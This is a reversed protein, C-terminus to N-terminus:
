KSIAVKKGNVVYIGPELDTLSEVNVRIGLLDYVVLGEPQAVEVGEIDRQESVSVKCTARADGGDIAYATIIAEGKALAKVKGTFDVTAVDENSSKWALTKDAANEPAVTAVITLEQGEEITVDSQDLTITEVTAPADELSELKIGSIFFRSSTECAFEWTIKKNNGVAPVEVSKEIMTSTMDVYGDGGSSPTMTGEYNTITLLTQGDVMVKLYGDKGFKGPEHGLPVEADGSDPTKGSGRDTELAFSFTLKTKRNLPLEPTALSAPVYEGTKAYLAHDGATRLWPAFQYKTATWNLLDMGYPYNEVCPIYPFSPTSVAAADTWTPSVIGDKVTWARLYTMTNADTKLEIHAPDGVYVVKGGGELEDGVKADASPFGFVGVYGAQYTDPTQTSSAVIVQYPSEVEFSIADTAESFAVFREPAGQPAQYKKEAFNTRNFAPYGNVSLARVYYDQGAAIDPISVNIKEGTGYYLVTANNINSEVPFTRGDEPMDKDTFESPSYLVVTADAGEAKECTINLTTSVQSIELNKPAEAPATTDSCPTFVFTPSYANDDNIDWNIYSEPKLMDGKFCPSKSVKNDIGTATLRIADELSWGTLGTDFGNDDSEEIGNHFAFEIKGDAEYLRIQLDYLGYQSNAIKARKFQLTFVQNGPEGDTAYSVEARQLGHKVPTMGVYFANSKIDRSVEGYGLIMGGNTLIAFQNVTTGAFNFNFGLSFGSASYDNPTAFYGSPMSADPWLCQTGVPWSYNVIIGDTIEEYPAGGKSFAYQPVNGATAFGPVALALAALAARTCLNFQNM